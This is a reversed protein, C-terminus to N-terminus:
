EKVEELWKGVFSTLASGSLARGCYDPSNLRRNGLIVGCLFGERDFIAGGSYGSHFIASVNVESGTWDIPKCKLFHQTKKGYWPYGVAVLDGARASRVGRPTKIGTPAKCRLISIDKDFDIAVIKAEARFGSSFEVKAGQSTGSEFTHACSVIIADGGSRGVYTGSGGPWVTQGDRYEGANSVIDCVSDYPWAGCSAAVFTMAVLLWAVLVIAAARLIAKPTHTNQTM